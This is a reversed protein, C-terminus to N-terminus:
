QDENGQEIEAFAKELAGHLETRKPTAAQVAEDNWREQNLWTAGHPRHQPERALMEASQGAMAAMVEAFRAATKVHKGFAQRAAKRAKRLWYGAWWETFWASQQATLGDSLRAPKENPATLVPGPSIPFLADPEVCEFPPDDISPLSPSVLRADGSACENEERGNGERGNGEMGKM